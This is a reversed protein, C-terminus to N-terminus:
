DSPGRCLAGGMATRLPSVSDGGVSAGVCVIGHIRAIAMAVPTTVYRRRARQQCQAVCLAACLDSHARFLHWPLTKARKATLTKM